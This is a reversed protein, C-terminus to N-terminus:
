PLKCGSRCPVPETWREHMDPPHFQPEAQALAQLFFRAVRLTDEFLDREAQLCGVEYGGCLTGDPAFAFVTLTAGAASGASHLRAYFHLPPVVEGLAAVLRDQYSITSHPPM